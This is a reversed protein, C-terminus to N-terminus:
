QRFYLLYAVFPTLNAVFVNELGIFLKKIIIIFYNNCFFSTVNMLCEKSGGRSSILNWIPFSVM